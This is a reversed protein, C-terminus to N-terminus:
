STARSATEEIADNVYFGLALTGAIKEADVATANPISSSSSSSTIDEDQGQNSTDLTRVQRCNCRAAWLCLNSQEEVSLKTYTSRHISKAGEAFLVRAVDYPSGLCQGKVNYQGDDDHQVILKCWVDQM